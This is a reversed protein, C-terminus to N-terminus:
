YLVEPESVIATCVCDQHLWKVYNMINHQTTKFIFFRLIYVKMEYWKDIKIHQLNTQFGVDFFVLFEKDYATLVM